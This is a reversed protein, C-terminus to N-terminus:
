TTEEEDTRILCELSYDNNLQKLFISDGVNTRLYKKSIVKKMVPVENDDLLECSYIRYKFVDLMINTIFYNHRNCLWGFIIFFIGFLLVGNWTTFDFAFLPFIYTFLFEATLFKEEEAAELHYHQTETTSPKLEKKMIILSIIFAVPLVGINIWETVPSETKRALSLIDQIIVSVWLPTFALYFMSWQFM